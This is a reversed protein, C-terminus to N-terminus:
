IEIEDKVREIIDNITFIIENAADHELLYNKLTKSQKAMINYGNEKDDWYRLGHWIRM